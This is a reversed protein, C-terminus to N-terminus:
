FCDLISLFFFWMWLSWTFLSIEMVICMATVLALCAFINWRRLGVLVCPISISLFPRCNGPTVNLFKSLTCPRFVQQPFPCIKWYFTNWRENNEKCSWRCDAHVRGFWVFEHPVQLPSLSARVMSAWSSGLQTCTAARGAGVLNLVRIGVHWNHYLVASSRSKSIWGEAWVVISCIGSDHM